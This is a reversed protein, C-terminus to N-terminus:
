INSQSLLSTAFPVKAIKKMNMIAKQPISIIPFKMSDIVSILNWGQSKENQIGKSETIGYIKM